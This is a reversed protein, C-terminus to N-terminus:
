KFFPLSYKLYANTWMDLAPWDEERLAGVFVIPKSHSVLDLFERRSRPAGEMYECETQGEAPEYLGEEL